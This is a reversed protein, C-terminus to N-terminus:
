SGLRAMWATFADADMNEPVIIGTISSELMKKESGDHDLKVTYCFHKGFTRINTIIGTGRKTTVKDNTAYNM